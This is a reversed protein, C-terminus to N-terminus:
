ALSEPDLLGPRDVVIVVGAHLDIEPVLATVFPVMAEKGDKRRVVLLEHAPAHLVGVVEGVEVGDELRVALGVLQQDHFEEPDDLQVTERVQATLLVGRLGEAASRDLAQEFSVLLRDGHPRATRVTLPGAATPDTALTVGAAFRREPEDTRLEVAVEGRIGHPRGIRGIM